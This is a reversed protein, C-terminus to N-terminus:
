KFDLSIEYDPDGNYFEIGLGENIFYQLDDGLWDILASIFDEVDITQERIGDDKPVGKIVLTKKATVM